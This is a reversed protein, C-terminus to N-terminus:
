QGTTAEIPSNSQQDAGQLSTGPAITYTIAAGCLQSAGDAGTFELYFYEGSDVLEPTALNDSVNQLGGTTNTVTVLGLQGGTTRRLELAAGNGIIYGTLSTITAGIPVDAGLRVTYPAADQRVCGNTWNVVDNDAAAGAIGIQLNVTSAFKADTEAKTYVDASDAKAGVATDVEAETYYRDDHTHDVTYGVVDILVDASGADSSTEVWIQIQGDKLDVTAANPEISGPTFNVTSTTPEGAADKARLSLFGDHTPTVDTVNFLVTVADSPVVTKSGGSAVPVSGTVQLDRPTADAFRGALGLNSRTDLIRESDVTVTVPRDGTDIAAQAMSLGGAGLTVAVAAGIASWRTRLLALRTHKHSM